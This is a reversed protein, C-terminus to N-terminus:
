TIFQKVDWVYRQLQHVHQYMINIKFYVSLNMLHMMYYAALPVYTIKILSSNQSRILGANM